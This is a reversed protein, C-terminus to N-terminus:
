QLKHHTGGGGGANVGGGGGSGIAGGGSDTTSGNILNETFLPDYWSDGGVPSWSNFAIGATLQANTFNLAANGDILDSGTVTTSGTTKNTLGLDFTVGVNAGLSAGIVGGLGVSVGAGANLSVDVHANQVQLSDLLHGGTLFSDTLVFTAGAHISLNVNFYVDFEVIDPIGFFPIKPTINGTDINAALNATVLNVQQGILVSSLFGVPNDLMPFDIDFTSKLNNYSSQTQGGAAGLLGSQQVATSETFSTAQSNLQRSGGTPMAQRADTINFSGVNVRISGSAPIQLNNINQILELATTLSSADSGDSGALMSALTYDHMGLLRTVSTIGPLPALMANVLPKLPSTYQQVTTVVPGVVNTLFSGLDVTVNNFAVSPTNGLLGSSTPDASNFTWTVNLAATISPLNPDDALSLAAQLNINAAGTLQPAVFQIGGNTSASFGFDLAAIFTSPPVRVSGGGGGGPARAVNAVLLGSPQTVTATLGGLSASISSGPAIQASVDLAVGLPNATNTPDAKSKLFPSGGQMGLDLVIDYSVGVNVAANHTAFQIPLGPLGLNLDVTGTSFVSSDHLHLELNFDGKGDSTPTIAQLISGLAGPKGLDTIIAKEIAQVGGAAQNAGDILAKEFSGVINGGVQNLAAGVLPLAKAFLQQDISTQLATLESTVFGPLPSALNKVIAPTHPKVVAAVAHVTTTSMVLRDELCEVLLNARRPARRAPRATKTTWFGRILNSLSSRM